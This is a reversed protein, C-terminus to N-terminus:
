AKGWKDTGEPGGELVPGFAQWLEVNDVEIHGVKRGAMAALGQVQGVVALSPYFVKYGGSALGFLHSQGKFNATANIV